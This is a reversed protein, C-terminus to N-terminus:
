IKLKIDLWIFKELHVKELVHVFNLIMLNLEINFISGKKLCFVLYIEHM